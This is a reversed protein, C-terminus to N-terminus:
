EGYASKRAEFSQTSYGNAAFILSETPLGIDIITRHGGMPSVGLFDLVALIIQASDRARWKLPHPFPSVVLPGLHESKRVCPEWWHENHSKNHLNNPGGDCTIKDANNVAGNQYQSGHHSSSEGGALSVMGMGMM